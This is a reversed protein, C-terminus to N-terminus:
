GQVITSKGLWTHFTPRVVTWAPTFLHSTRPLVADRTNTKRMGYFELNLKDIFWERFVYLLEILQKKTSPPFARVVVSDKVLVM